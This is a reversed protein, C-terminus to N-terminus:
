TGLCARSSLQLVRRMSDVRVEIFSAVSEATAGPKLARIADVISAEMLPRPRRKRLSEEGGGSYLKAASEQLSPQTLRRRVGREQPDKPPSVRGFGLSGSTFARKVSPSLKSPSPQGDPSPHM